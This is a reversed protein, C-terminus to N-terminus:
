VAAMGGEILKLTFQKQTRDREQKRVELSGNWAVDPNVYYIVVGRGRMGVVKEYERRIVGMNELTKMITSVNNSSIELEQAIEERTLMVEGTDQNINLLVHLFVDRTQVPRMSPPLKRICQSIKMVQKRGFMTFGWCDNDDLERYLKNLITRKERHPLQDSPYLLLQKQLEATQQQELQHQKSSFKVIKRV